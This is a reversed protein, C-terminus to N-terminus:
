YEYIEEVTEGGKVAVGDVGLGPHELGGGRLRLVVPADDGNLGLGEVLTSFLDAVEPALHHHPLLGRCRRASAGVVVVVPGAAREAERIRRTPSRTRSQPSSCRRSRGHRRVLSGHATSTLSTISWCVWAPRTM